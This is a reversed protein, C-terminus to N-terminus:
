ELFNKFKKPMIFYIIILVPLFYYLFSINTFLMKGGLM